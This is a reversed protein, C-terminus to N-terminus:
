TFKVFDKKNKYKEVTKPQELFEKVDKAISVYGISVLVDCLHSWTVDSCESERWKRLVKELKEDYSSMVGDKVLGQRYNYDVDLGEGIENWKVSIKKLISFDDHGIPSKRM